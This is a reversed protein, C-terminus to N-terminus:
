LGIYKLAVICPSDTASTLGVPEYQTTRAESTTAVSSIEKAFQSLTVSLLSEWDTGRTSAIQLYAAFCGAFWRSRRDQLSCRTTMSPLYKHWLTHSSRSKLCNIFCIDDAVNNFIKTCKTMVRNGCLLWKVCWLNKHSCNVVLLLDVYLTRCEHVSFFPWDRSKIYRIM